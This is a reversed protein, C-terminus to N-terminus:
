VKEIKEVGAPVRGTNQEYISIVDRTAAEFLEKENMKRVNTRQVFAILEKYTMKRGIITTALKYIGKAGPITEVEENLWDSFENKQFDKNDKKKM